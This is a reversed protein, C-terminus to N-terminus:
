NNKYHIGKVRLQLKESHSGYENSIMCEYEGKDSHAVNSITLVTENENSNIFIKGEVNTIINSSNKFSWEWKTKEQNQQGFLLTCKFDVKNGESVTQSAKEPKYLYPAVKLSLIM